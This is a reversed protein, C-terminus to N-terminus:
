VITFDNKLVIKKLYRSYIDSYGWFSSVVSESNSIFKKIKLVRRAIKKILM